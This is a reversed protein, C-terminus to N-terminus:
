QAAYALVDVAVPDDDISNGTAWCPHSFGRDADLDLNQTDSQGRVIQEWLPLCFRGVALPLFTDPRAGTAFGAAVTAPNELPSGPYLHMGGAPNTLPRRPWQATAPAFTFQSYLPEGILSGPYILGHFALFHYARDLAEWIQKHIDFLSAVLRAAQDSSAIGTLESSSTDINTPGTPERPDPPDKEWPKSLLMNDWFTCTEKKGWQVICQVFAQVLDIIILILAIIFCVGAAKNNDSSSPTQSGPSNNGLSVGGGPDGAPGLDQTRLSGPPNTPDGYIKVLWVALPEAPVPPRVFGDLLQLHQLMRRYGRQLDPLPPTAAVAFTEGVAERLLQEISSPLRPQIPGGFRVTTAIKGPTPTAPASGALWSGVSNRALRDRFPHSRRPGGVVHGLYASGAANAGYGALAGFAFARTASDRARRSLSRVLADTRRALFLNSWDWASAPRDMQRPHPSIHDFSAVQDRLHAVEAQMGLAKQSFLQVDLAASNFRAVSDPDGPAALASELRDRVSALDNYLGLGRTWLAAARDLIALERGDSAAHAFLHDTLAGLLAYGGAVSLDSQLQTRAAVLAADTMPAAALAKTTEDLVRQHAHYDIL